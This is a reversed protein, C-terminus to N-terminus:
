LEISPVVKSGYSRGFHSLNSKKKSAHTHSGFVFLTMTEKKLKEEFEDTMLLMIMRNDLDFVYSLILM